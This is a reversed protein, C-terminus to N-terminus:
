RVKSIAPASLVIKKVGHPYEFSIKAIGGDINLIVGEGFVSHFILDGKLYPLHKRKEMPDAFLKEEKPKSKVNLERPKQFDYNVGIHDIHQQDIEDIFRSKSRKNHIVLSFDSVETLYLKNKARTYAVYALRREEELGCKGESMTKENPFIGENLGIIFVTDFELGKAAHITMLQCYDGDFQSYYNEQISVFQLYDGLNSEPYLNQFSLFDNNLEKINELRHVENSTEYMARLGSENVIKEIVESLPKTDLLGKTSEILRIFQKIESEIKGNFSKDTKIQEYLTRNNLGADEVIKDLTKEGIGRKPTNIVRMFSYNDGSILMRLYLLVNKVEALDYFQPGGYIVYPIHHNLFSKELSKSLYNSRYLIAMKSFAKGKENMENLKNAIWNAEQEESVFSIHTIKEDSIFETFLEKNVRYQNNKILSTAGNLIHQTSRYNQNLIITETPKFDKDFDMIINVDSGRWSYITQDPDGVVYVQNDRGALQKILKYQIRDIDQFDDVLIFNFRCQWKLLVDPYMDFMKVTVLLLDDFDLAFLAKQREVYYQYIKAKEPEGLYGNELDFACDVTVEAFKNASIYDLLSTISYKYKDFGLEKIASKIILIQEYENLILFDRPLKLLKHNKKIITLCLSHITSIHADVQNSRVLSRLRLRIDNASRRSFTLTLISGPYISLENILYVIRTILIHTKGSGPGAIIRLYPNSNMVAKRQSENLNTLINM